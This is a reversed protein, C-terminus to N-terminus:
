QDEEESNKASNKDLGLLADKCDDIFKKTGREGRVYDELLPELRLEFVAKLFDNIDDLSNLKDKIDDPLSSFQGQTIYYHKNLGFSSNGEALYKENLNNVRKAIDGAKEESIEFIEEFAKKLSFEDVNIEKWIFRRRMAFDMSEVSRDIDNMTGIIIVNEPIYFGDEFIDKIEEDDLFEEFASKEKETFYTTLNQYQTQVKEGRKDTELCYMLEGFVKSLDARNIEDIIFYFKNNKSSTNKENYMAVYRCFSKFIGDRKVFQINNETGSGENLNIPRLGEVFDTYDYSPHFQVFEYFPKDKKWTLQTGKLEDGEEGKAIRKAIRTKGTGPAGTLIIQTAGGLLINKIMEVDSKNEAMQVGEEKELVKNIKDKLVEIMEDGYFNNNRYTKYTDKDKKAENYDKCKGFIFGYDPGDDKLILVYDAWQEAVKKGPEGANVLIKNEMGNIINKHKKESVVLEKKDIGLFEVIQDIKPQQYAFGCEKVKERLAKCTGKSEVM